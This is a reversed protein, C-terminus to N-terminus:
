KLRTIFPSKYAETRQENTLLSRLVQPSTSLGVSPVFFGPQGGNMLNSPTNNPLHDLGFAHGLEHALIGLNDARFANYTLVINTPTNGSRGGGSGFTKGDAGDSFERANIIFIGITNIKSCNTDDRNRINFVSQFDPNNIDITTNYDDKDLNCEGKRLDCIKTNFPITRGNSSWIISAIDLLQNVNQAQVSQNVDSLIYVCVDVPTVHPRRPISPDGKAASAYNVNNSLFDAYAKYREYESNPAFKQSCETCSINKLSKKKHPFSKDVYYMDDKSNYYFHYKKM